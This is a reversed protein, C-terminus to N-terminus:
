FGTKDFYTEWQERKMPKMRLNWMAQRVTATPYLGNISEKAYKDFFAKFRPHLYLCDTLWPDIESWWTCKLKPDYRQQIIAVGKDGILYLTCRNYVPHDCRYTIGYSSSYLEPKEYYYKM